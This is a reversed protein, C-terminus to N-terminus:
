QSIDIPQRIEEEYVGSPQVLTAAPVNQPHWAPDVPRCLLVGHSRCRDFLGVLREGGSIGPNAGQGVRQGRRQGIGIRGDLRHVIGGRWIADPAYWM